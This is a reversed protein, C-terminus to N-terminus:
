PGSPKYATSMLALGSAKCLMRFRESGLAPKLRSIDFPGSGYKRVADVFVDSVLSLDYDTEVLDCIAREPRM